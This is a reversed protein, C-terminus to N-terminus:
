WPPKVGRRLMKGDAEAVSLEVMPAQGRVDTAQGISFSQERRLPGSTLSASHSLMFPWPLNCFADSGCCYSCTLVVEMVRGGVLVELASGGGVWRRGGTRVVQRV